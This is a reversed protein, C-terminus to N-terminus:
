IRGEKSDSDKRTQRDETKKDLNGARYRDRIGQTQGTDGEDQNKREMEKQRKQSNKERGPAM